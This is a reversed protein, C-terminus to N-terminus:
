QRNICSWKLFIEALCQCWRLGSTIWNCSVCFMGFVKGDVRYDCIVLSSILGTSVVLSLKRSAVGKGFLLASSVIHPLSIGCYFVKHVWIYNIDQVCCLMPPFPFFLTRELWYLFWLSYVNRSFWLSSYLQFYKWDSELGYSKTIHVCM